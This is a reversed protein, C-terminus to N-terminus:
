ENLIDYKQSMEVLHESQQGEPISKLSGGQYGEQFGEFISSKANRQEEALCVKINLFSEVLINVNELINDLIVGM